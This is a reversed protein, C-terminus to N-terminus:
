YNGLSHLINNRQCILIWQVSIWLWAKQCLICSDLPFGLLINAWFCIVPCCNLIVSFGDQGDRSLSACLAAKLLRKRTKTMFKSKPNGLGPWLKWNSLWSVQVLVELWVQATHGNHSTGTDVLAPIYACTKSCRAWHGLIVPLRALTLELPGCFMVWMDRCM